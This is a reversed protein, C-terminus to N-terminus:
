PIIVAFNRWMTIQHGWLRLFYPSECFRLLSVAVCSDCLKPLISKREVPHNFIGEIEIVCLVKMACSWFATSVTRSLCIGGFLAYRLFWIVSNKFYLNLKKGELVTLNKIKFKNFMGPVFLLLRENAPFLWFMVLTTCLLASSHKDSQKLARRWYCSHCELRLRVVKRGAGVAASDWVSGRATKINGRM